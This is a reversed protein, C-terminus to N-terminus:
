IKSVVVFYIRQDGLFSFSFSSDNPWKLITETFFDKINFYVNYHNAASEEMSWEQFDRHLTTM